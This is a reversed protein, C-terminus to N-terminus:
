RGDRDLEAAAPPCPWPVRCRDCFPTVAAPGLAGPLQLTAVRVHEGVQFVPEAVM